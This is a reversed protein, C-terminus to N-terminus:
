RIVVLRGTVVGDPKILYIIYVGSAVPAGYKNRGDWTITTTPLPANLYQQFLTKVHEGASNYIKLEM